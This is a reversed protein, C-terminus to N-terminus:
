STTSLSEETMENEQAAAKVRDGLKQGVAAFAGSLDTGMQKKLPDFLKQNAKMFGVLLGIWRDISLDEDELMALIAARNAKGDATFFQPDKRLSSILLQNIMAGNEQQFFEEVFGEIVSDRREDLATIMEPEIAKTEQEEVVLGEHGPLPTRTTVFAQQKRESSGSGDLLSIVAAISKFIPALLKRSQFLLANGVPVFSFTVGDIEHEVTTPATFPNM